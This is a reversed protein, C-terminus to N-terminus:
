RKRKRKNRKKPPSDIVCKSFCKANQLLRQLKNTILSDCKTIVTVNQLLVTANQLLFVQRMQYYFKTGSQLLIANTNQSLLIQRMKYSLTM